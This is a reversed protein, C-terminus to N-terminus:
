SSDKQKQLTSMPIQIPIPNFRYTVHSLKKIFCFYLNKYKMTTFKEDLKFMSWVKVLEKKQNLFIWIKNYNKKKKQAQESSCYAIM